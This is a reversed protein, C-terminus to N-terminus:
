KVAVTDTWYTRTQGDPRVQIMGTWTERRLPHVQEGARLVICGHKRGRAQAKAWDSKDILAASLLAQFDIRRPCAPFNSTVAVSPNDAPAPAPRVGSSTPRREGAPPGGTASSQAIAGSGPRRPRSWPVTLAAISGVSRTRLSRPSLGLRSYRALDRGHFKARCAARMARDVQQAMTRPLSAHDASHRAALMGLRFEDRGFRAVSEGYPPRTCSVHASAVNWALMLCGLLAIRRKM